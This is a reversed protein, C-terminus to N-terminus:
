VTRVPVSRGCPLGCSTAASTRKEPIWGSSGPQFEAEFREGQDDVRNTAGSPVKAGFLVAMETGTARNNLFRWQALATLDGIGASDGRFDVSNIAVGGVHEHHGERIDTRLVYPLRLMLMLDNTLGLAFGASASQITGISHAHIHKGAAEILAADSLGGLKIYEYLFGIAFQGQDLTTASLTVIPGATGTSGIGGPHHAAAPAASLVAVAVGACLASRHSM